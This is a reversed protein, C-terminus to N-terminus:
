VSGTNEFGIAAEIGVLQEVGKKVEPPLVGLRQQSTRGM